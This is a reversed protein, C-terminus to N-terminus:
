LPFDFTSGAHCAVCATPFATWLAVTAPLGTCHAPAHQRVGLRRLEEATWGVREVPADGLHMGGIVARLPRGRTLERVYRLTNIVGSHACGLLVVTGEATDFFVSQDDEMRDPRTCMPDLFFSGGPEEFKTTRPVFGTVMLRPGIATPRDTFVLRRHIARVALEAAHPMGIERVSGDSKLAYKPAFAAPHAFVTAHRNTKLAEPLGGTHDYHGHSLVIAEADHVPIGLKFANAALVLGQGTDFLVRSSDVDVWFALGHEGLLGPGFATNEALVTIRARGTM